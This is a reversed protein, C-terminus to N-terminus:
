FLPPFFAFFFLMCSMNISELAEIRKYMELSAPHFRSVRRRGGEGEGLVASGEVGEPAAESAPSSPVSASASSDRKGGHRRSSKRDCM